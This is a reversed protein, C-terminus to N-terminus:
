KVAVPYHKFLAAVGKDIATQFKSSKEPVVDEVAGTWIMMNKKADVIDLTMTGVRYRGTEIEKSEWKYNRQGIYLPPDTMLNTERTQVKEKVVLGINILIDPNAESRECGRKELERAIANQLLLTSSIFNASITDGSAHLKYFDFTKYDNFDVNPASETNSVKTTSCSTILLAFFIYKKM